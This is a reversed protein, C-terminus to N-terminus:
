VGSEPIEPIIQGAELGDEDRWVLYCMKDRQYFRCFNVSWGDALYSEVEASDIYKAIIAM